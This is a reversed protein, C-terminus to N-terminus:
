GRCYHRGDVARVQERVPHRDHRAAGGADSEADGGFEEMETRAEPQTGEGVVRRAPQETTIAERL